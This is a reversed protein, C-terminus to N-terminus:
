YLALSCGNKLLQNRKTGDYARKVIALTGDRLLRMGYWQQVFGSTGHLLSLDRLVVGRSVDIIWLRM